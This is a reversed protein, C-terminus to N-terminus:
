KDSHLQKKKKVYFTCDAASKNKKTKKEKRRKNNNNDKKKIIRISGSATRIVMLQRNYAQSSTRGYPFLNETERAPPDQLAIRM